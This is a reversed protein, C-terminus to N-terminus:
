YTRGLVPDSPQKPKVPEDNQKLSGSDAAQLEESRYTTFEVYNKAMIKSTLADIQKQHEDERHVIFALLLVAVIAISVMGVIAEM